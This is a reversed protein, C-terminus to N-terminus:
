GRRMRYRSFLVGQYTERVVEDVVFGHREFVPVSFPTAWAWFSAIGRQEAVALAHRLLTRGLGQRTCAARVYFSRVEGHSDIGCFGLPTPDGNRQAIWTTAGLIYDRFAPGDVGFSAWAGVQEDTYCWPGLTRATDAYLGALGPVDAETAQRLHWDPPLAM